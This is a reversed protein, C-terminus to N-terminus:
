LLELEDEHCPWTSDESPDQEPDRQEESVQVDYPFKTPRGHETFEKAKVVTGTTGNPYENELGNGWHVFRVSAGEEFKLTM